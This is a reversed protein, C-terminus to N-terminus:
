IDGQLIGPDPANYVIAKLCGYIKSFQLYKM